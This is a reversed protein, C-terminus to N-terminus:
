AQTPPQHLRRFDFWLDVLGVGIVLLTLPKLLLLPYGLARIIKPVRFRHFIFAVIALGQYFYILGCLLLVNLAVKPLWGIPLLIGFGAALAIFVLWEPSKWLNLPPGVDQGTSQRIIERSLIMNLWVILTTNILWLAPSIQVVLEILRPLQLNDPLLQEAPIGEKGLLTLFNNALNEITRHLYDLPALGQHLAQAVFILGGVLTMILVTISIARDAAYGRISLLALVLGILALELYQVIEGNLHFFHELYWFVGAAVLVLFFGSWWSVRRCVLIIPLPILIGFLTGLLPIQLSAIYLLLLVCLGSILRLVLTTEM